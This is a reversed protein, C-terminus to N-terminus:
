GFCKEQRFECLVRSEGRTQPEDFGSCFMVIYMTMIHRCSNCSFLVYRSYTSSLSVSSSFGCQQVRGQHIPYIKTVPGNTDCIVKYILECIVFSRWWLHSIEAYQLYM